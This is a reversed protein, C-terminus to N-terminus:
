AEGGKAYAVMLVNDMNYLMDSITTHSKLYNKKVKGGFRFGVM